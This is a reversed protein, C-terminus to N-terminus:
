QRAEAVSVRIARNAVQQGSQALAAKLMDLTGFEIYAFGKPKGDHGSVVRISNIQTLLITLMNYSASYACVCRVSALLNPSSTM